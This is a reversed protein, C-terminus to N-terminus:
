LLAVVMVSMIGVAMALVSGAGLSEFRSTSDSEPNATVTLTAGGNAVHVHEEIQSPAVTGSGSAVLAIPTGHVTLIGGPTLTKGGIVFDSSADATFTTGGFVLTPEAGVESPKSTKPNHLLKTSSGVVIVGSNVAYSVSTDDVTIVRGPRLTHGGIVFRSFAKLTYTSHDVTITPTNSISSPNLGASQSKAGNVAHQPTQAQKVSSSRTGDEAIMAPRLSPLLLMGSTGRQGAGAPTAVGPHHQAHSNQVPPAMRSTSAPPNTSTAISPITAAPSAVTSGDSLYVTSTAILSLVPQHAVNGHLDVGNPHFRSQPAFGEINFNTNSKNSQPFIVLSTPITTQDDTTLTALVTTSSVM